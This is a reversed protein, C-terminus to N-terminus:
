ILLFFISCCEVPAPFVGYRLHRLFPVVAAACRVVVAHGGDLRHAGVGEREVGGGRLVENAGDAVVAGLALLDGDFDAGEGGGGGGGGEGSEEEGEGGENRKEDLRGQM